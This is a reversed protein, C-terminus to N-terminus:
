PCLFAFSQAAFSSIMFHEVTIQAEDGVPVIYGVRTVPLSVSSSSESKPYKHFIVLGFLPGSSCLQVTGTQTCAPDDPLQLYAHRHNTTDTVVFGVCIIGCTETMACSINDGGMLFLTLRQRQGCMGDCKACNLQTKAQANCRHRPM